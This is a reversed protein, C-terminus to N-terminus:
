KSLECGGYHPGRLHTEIRSPGYVIFVGSMPYVRDSMGDSGENDHYIALLLHERTNSIESHTPSIAKSDAKVVFTPTEETMEVIELKKTDTDYNISFFPETFVCQIVEAQAFNAILVLAALTAFRM